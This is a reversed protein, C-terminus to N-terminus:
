DLWSDQKNYRMKLNEKLRDFEKNDIRKFIFGQKDFELTKKFDIKYIKELSVNNIFMSGMSFCSVDIKPITM